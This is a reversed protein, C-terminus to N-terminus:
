SNKLVYKIIAQSIKTIDDLTSEKGLSIRISGHIYSEEVHIAKLVHSPEISNSDCASGTSVYIEDQNLQFSLDNGDIGKFSINLNGPLRKGGLKPGNLKMDPISTKLKKYLVESLESEMKNQQSMEKQILEFAKSMGVINAVNETGARKGKEQGGGHILNELEIGNRIYLCGVGKPGYFKHASISMLDVNLSALDLPIHSVAQVADTHFIIDKKKCLAGIAKINQITGIENNALIISVMLTNENMTKELDKLNIFGEDNVALYHIIFGLKELFECTHIISHHEIKTTIIEKKDKARFAIGKLAWNNAESGGSCFYIESAKANLLTAIQMRCKNIVKKNATGIEYLSSPNGYEQFLYPLMAHYVEQRVQTTSAHDSYILYDSGKM